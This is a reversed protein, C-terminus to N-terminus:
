LNWGTPEKGVLEAHNRELELIAARVEEVTGSRLAARHRRMYEDETIRTHKCRKEGGKPEKTEAGTLLDVLHWHCREWWRLTAIGALAEPAEADAQQSPGYAGEKAFSHFEAETIAAAIVADLRIDAPSGGAWRPAIRAQASRFKRPNRKQVAVLLADIRKRTEPRTTM